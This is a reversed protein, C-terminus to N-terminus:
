IAGRRERAPQVFSEESRLLERIERVQGSFRVDDRDRPRRVGVVLEQRVTGPRGTMVVVRDSLYLAEVIDHTVFIVSKRRLQWIRLLEDQLGERTLADVSSFPEDMLLVLPDNALARALAVRQQMGGSLQSPYAGEFGALGVLEVLERAIRQREEKDVGRAQPGFTINELVSRWPFLAYDQFILGREWSPRGAIPRGDMLIEGGTPTELGAVMRLLTSKGCGSPGVVCVFEGDDVTMSFDSLAHLLGRGTGPSMWVKSVKAMTITAM